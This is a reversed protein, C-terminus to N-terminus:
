EIHIHTFLHDQCYEYNGNCKSCFRFELNDGDLETRGCVACRHRTNTRAGTAADQSTTYSERVGERYNRKFEMRRKIQGPSLYQRTMFFYVFFNAMAVIAVTAKCIGSLLNGAVFFRPGSIGVIEGGHLFTMVIDVGLLAVYAISLWKAKVPILFMIYFRHEPFTVSYALLMSLNLYYLTIPYNVGQGYILFSIVYILVVALINFIIGMFYFLNFRFTGWVRELISGIVYYIYLMLLTLIVNSSMPQIIFTILRWVQGHLLANIDLMLWEYYFQPNILNVVFGAAYLVVVYRMLNRIAYKGFKRELKLIM